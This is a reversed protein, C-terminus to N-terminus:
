LLDLGVLAGLEGLAQRPETVKITFMGLQRATKLNAGIDDLMVAQPATVGLRHLTRRYIEPEPKRVGERCSEVVTDFHRGIEGVELGRWNNTVAAVSLGNGRLRRVAELMPPRVALNSEIRGMMEAVDLDVGWRGAEERLRRRFVGASIEGREHCAWAGTSGAGMVIKGVTGWELGQDAEFATIVHLPSEFVVGGLDFLVARIEAGVGASM